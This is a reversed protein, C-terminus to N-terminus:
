TLPQPERHGPPFSCLEEYFFVSRVPGKEQPHGSLTPPPALLRGPNQLSQKNTATTIAMGLAGGWGWGSTSLCTVAPVLSRYSHEHCSLHPLPFVPMGPLLSALYCPSHASRSVCILGTVPLISPIELLTFNSYISSGTSAAVGLLVSYGLM